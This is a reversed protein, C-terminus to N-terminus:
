GRPHKPKEMWCEVEEIGWEQDFENMFIEDEEYYAAFTVDGDTTAILIEEGSNPKKEELSYWTNKVELM